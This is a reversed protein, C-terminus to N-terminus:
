RCRMLEKLNLVLLVRGDGLLATGSYLNFGSMVGELPKLIIDTGEHFDDVILGVSEGNITVVLIAIEREEASLELPQESEDALQISLLQRLRFLPLLRNRLIVSEQQKIYRIERKPIRVTERVADFAIGFDENGVRIMMVRTVAMSLPLSLRVTTGRGKESEVVVSGGVRQVTSRVVDMGVGRGSLDSIREATSFGAAFILQIAEHDSMTEVVEESILGKAYALQKIVEPDIGKGDDIIEILVRDDQQTARLILQAEAAKGAQQRVEPVEIGHDLSNRVLHILPDALDEVINKDAETEEGQTLFKVQKGLKRSIDRVLRPFRQFASSVPVMRVQMVAYQLDEALRNIVAHQGKIERALERMGYRDEARKALFPLANKAVVLEGVLDMLNDIREQDVKLTRFMTNTNTQSNRRAVGSPEDAASQAGGEPIITEIREPDAVAAPTHSEVLQQIFKLLPDGSRTALAEQHANDLAAAEGEAGIAALLRQVVTVVSAIRGPWM